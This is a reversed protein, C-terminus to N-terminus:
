SSKLAKAVHWTVVQCYHAMENEIFNKIYTHKEHEALAQENIFKETMILFNSDEQSILLEYLLCGPEQRTPTILKLLAAILKERFEPKAKFYSFCYVEETTKPM